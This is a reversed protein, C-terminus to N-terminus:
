RNSQATKRRRSGLTKFPPCSTFLPGLDKCGLVYILSVLSAIQKMLLSIEENQSSKAEDVAKLIAETHLRKMQELEIEHQVLLASFLSLSYFCLCHVCGRSSQRVTGQFDTGEILNMIKSDKSTMMSDFHFDKQRIILKIEAEYKEMQSNLKVHLQSVETKFLFEATARYEEFQM